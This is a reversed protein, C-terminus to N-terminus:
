HVVTVRDPSVSLLAGLYLHQLFNPVPQQKAYGRAIAWRAQDELTVLQSQRLDVRFDLAQWVPRLAAPDLKLQTAALALAEQPQAKIFRETEILARVMKEVARGRQALFENRGVVVHTVTYANSESFSMARAAGLAEQARSRVPEWTSVADLGGGALRESMQGPAVDVLAVREPALKNHTLFAWLFYEGSTGFTVGVRKGLLDAPQAIARDRRAVIAMETSVSLVTAAIGLPEGNLVSIVFPVEAAAALDTQGQVLLDLAAKGHSVPKITLDLGERAFFGKAHALHLLAAHPTTSLAITLKEPPGASGASLTRPLVYWLAAAVAAALVVAVAAWRRGSGRSSGAELPADM